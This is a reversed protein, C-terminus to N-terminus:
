IFPSLTIVSDKKYRTKPSAIPLVGKPLESMALHSNTSSKIADLSFLALYPTPVICALSSGLVKYSSCVPAM